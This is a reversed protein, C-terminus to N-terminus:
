GPSDQVANQSISDCDLGLPHVADLLRRAEQYTDREPYKVQVHLVHRAPKPLNSATVICTLSGATVHAASPVYLDVAFGEGEVQHRFEKCEFVWTDVPVKSDGDKWYFVHRDRPKPMPPMRLSQVNPHLPSMGGYIGLTRRLSDVTSFPLDRKVWRGKPPCPCQPLHMDGSFKKRAEDEVPQLLLVGGATRFEVLVNEAPVYGTNGITVNLNLLSSRGDLNRALDEFFARVGAQWAPYTQEKYEKVADPAAPEYEYIPGLHTRIRSMEKPPEHRAPDFETEMPFISFAETSLTNVEKVSLARYRAMEIVIPSVVNGSHSSLEISIQPASQEIAKLRKELESIRKDRSDPEPDLLWTDPVLEFPLGCRKATMMPGTDGTLLYVKQGPNERAYAVTDAVIRDDSYTLDFTDLPATSNTVPPAFSIEVRPHSERLVIRSDDSLVIKRLLSSAERSKRARRGNGDQKHKDIEDQVARCVLLLIDGDTCIQHWPLQDLAKCQIFVNTDLFYVTM